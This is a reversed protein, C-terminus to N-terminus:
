VESKALSLNMLIIGELVGGLESFISWIDDTCGYASLEIARRVYEKLSIQVYKNQTTKYVYKSEWLNKLKRVFERENIVEYALSRITNFFMLLSNALMVHCFYYRASQYEAREKELFSLLASEAINYYKFLNEAMSDVDEKVDIGSKFAEALGEGVETLKYRRGVKVVYGRQVLGTGRKNYLRQSLLQKSVHLSKALRSLSVSGDQSEKSLDLM